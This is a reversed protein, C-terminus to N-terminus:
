PRCSVSSTVTRTSRLGARVVVESGSDPLGRCVTGTGARRSRCYPGGEPSRGTLRPQRFQRRRQPRRAEDRRMNLSRNTAIRYLWTRLSSRGEFRGLSRWASILTEQVADEADQTSGLLRYSHLELERRFPDILSRFAEEDGARARALTRETM